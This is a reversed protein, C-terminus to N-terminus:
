SIKRVIWFILSLAISILIMTTLPMYFSGWPKKIRIDGPLNGFWKFHHGGLWLLFGTILLIGGVIMALKGVDRM